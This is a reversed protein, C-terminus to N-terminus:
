ASYSCIYIDQGYTSTYDRVSIQSALAEASSDDVIGINGSNYNPVIATVSSDGNQFTGKTQYSSWWNSKSSLSDQRFYYQRTVVIGNSNKIKQVIVCGVDGECASPLTLAVYNPRGSVDSQYQPTQPCIIGGLVLTELHTFATQLDEESGDVQSTVLISDAGHGPNPPQSTYAITFITGALILLFASLLFAYKREINIKIQVM